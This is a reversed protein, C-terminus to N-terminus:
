RYGRGDVVFDLTGNPGFDANASRPSGITSTVSISHRSREPFLEVISSM